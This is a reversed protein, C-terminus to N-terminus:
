IRWFIRSRKEVAVNQTAKQMYNNNRNNEM